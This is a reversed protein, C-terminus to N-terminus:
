TDVFACLLWNGSLIDNLIRNQRMRLQLWRNVRLRVM